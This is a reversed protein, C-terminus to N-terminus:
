RLMADFVRLLPDPDEPPTFRPSAQEPLASRQPLKVTCPHEETSRLDPRIQIPHRVSPRHAHVCLHCGGEHEDDLPARAVREEQM